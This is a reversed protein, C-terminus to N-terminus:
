MYMDNYDDPDFITQWITSGHHFRHPISARISSGVKAYGIQIFAVGGSWMCAHLFLTSRVSVTGNVDGMRETTM